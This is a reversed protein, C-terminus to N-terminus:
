GSIELNNIVCEVGVVNAAIQGATMIQATAFEDYHRNVFGTLKVVGNETMVQVNLDRVVANQMLASKVKRTVAADQNDPFQTAHQIVLAGRLEAASLYADHNLDAAEFTKIPMGKIMAEQVSVKHDHNSDYQTTIDASSTVAAFVQPTNVIAILGGIVLIRQFKTM